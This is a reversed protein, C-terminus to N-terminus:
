EDDEDDGDDGGGDINDDDDDCFDDMRNGSGSSFVSSANSIDSQDGTGDEDPWEELGDQVEEHGEEGDGEEDEEEVVVVVTTAAAAANTAHGGAVAGGAAVDLPCMLEVIGAQAAALPRDASVRRSGVPIARDLRSDVTLFEELLRFADSSPEAVVLAAHARRLTFDRLFLRSIEDGRLLSGDRRCERLALLLCRSEWNEAARFFITTGKKMFSDPVQKFPIQSVAGEEPSVKYVVSGPSPTVAGPAQPPRIVFLRGSYLLFLGGDMEPVVVFSGASSGSLAKPQDGRLLILGTKQLHELDSLSCGLDLLEDKFYSVDMRLFHKAWKICHNICSECFVPTWKEAFVNAILPEMAARDGTNRARIEPKTTGWGHETAQLEFHYPPTLALAFEIGYRASIGKLLASTRTPKVEPSAGFFIEKLTPVTLDKLDTDISFGLAGLASLLPGKSMKAKAIRFGQSSDHYGAGDAVILVKSLGLSKAKIAAAPLLKEALYKEMNETTFNGHYDGTAKAGGWTCFAGDLREGDCEGGFCMADVIVFREGKNGSGAGQGADIFEDDDDVLGKGAQDNKNIWTEDYFVILTDERRIANILRLCFRLRKALVRRAYKYRPRRLLM